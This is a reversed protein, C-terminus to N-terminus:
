VAEDKTVVSSKAAEVSADWVLLPDAIRLVVQRLVYRWCFCKLEPAQLHQLIAALLGDLFSASTDTRVASQLPSRYVNGVLRQICTVPDPQDCIAELFLKANSVTMIDQKGALVRAFFNRLKGSRDSM